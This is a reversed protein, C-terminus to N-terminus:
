FGGLYLGSITTLPLLSIPVPHLCHAVMQSSEFVLGFQHESQDAGTQVLVLPFSLINSLSLWCAPPSPAERREGWSLDPVEPKYRDTGRISVQIWRRYGGCWLTWMSSALIARAMHHFGRGSQSLLLFSSCLHLKGGRFFAVVCCAADFGECSKRGVGWKVYSWIWLSDM